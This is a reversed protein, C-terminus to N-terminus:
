AGETPLPGTADARLAAWFADLAAQDAWIKGAGVYNSLFHGYATAWLAPNEDLNVINRTVNRIFVRLAPDDALASEFGLQVTLPVRDLFESGTLQRRGLTANVYSGNQQRVAWPKITAFQEATIEVAGEPVTLPVSDSSASHVGMVTDGDLELYYIAYSM